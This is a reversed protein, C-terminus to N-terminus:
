CVKQKKASDLGTTEGDTPISEQSQSLRREVAELAAVLLDDDDVLLQDGSKSAAAPPAPAPAAASSSIVKSDNTNEKGAILVPPLQVKLSTSAKRKNSGKQQQKIEKELAKQQKAAQKAQNKAEEKGSVFGEYAALIDRRADATVVNNWGYVASPHGRKKRRSDTLYCLAHHQLNMYEGRQYASIGKTTIRFMGAPITKNCIQCHATRNSVSYNVM